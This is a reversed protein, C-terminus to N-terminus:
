SILFKENGSLTVGSTQIDVWQFKRGISKLSASLWQLFRINTLPEGTGTIVMSEFNRELCFNICDLYDNEARYDPYSIRDKYYNNDM